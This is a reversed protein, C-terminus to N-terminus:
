DLDKYKGIVSHKIFSWECNIDVYFLRNDLWIKILEIIDTQLGIIKLRKILLKINVVDFAASLDISSMIAYKDEDLAWTLISQLTLGATATSKGKKFEHQSKGSQDCLNKTEIERLRDIILQEYVKAMSCLNAIPRYNKIDNKSGKKYIPIIKSISWQEPIKM